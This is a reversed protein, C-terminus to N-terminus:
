SGGSEDAPDNELLLAYVTLELSSGASYSNDSQLYLGKGKTLGKGFRLDETPEVAPSTETFDNYAVLEATYIDYAFKPTTPDQDSLSLKTGAGSWPTPGIVYGRFSLVHISQTVKVESEPIITIGANAQAVSIRVTKKVIPSSTGAAILADIATQMVEMADALSNIDGGLVLDASYLEAFMANLAARIVSGKDKDNIVTQAM